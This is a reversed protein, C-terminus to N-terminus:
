GLYWDMIREGYVVAVWSGLVLSPGFPITDKRGVRGAVLLGVSVLGGILFAAFVAVFLTGWAVHATFLGLLFGLKVDGFGFGGRAALAVVLLFGFYTAGGLLGRAFAGADGDAVAGGALLVLAVATGPYLVRNPLRKTDLDIVSLVFTLAVFWLYAPLVWAAGVVLVTAVFLVATGAEVIPYRLSIRSSCHRCRGRLILWSVVPLNDLAGITTGCAPCASRGRAVSVGAPVRHAVVNLFSGIILGFVAAGLLIM